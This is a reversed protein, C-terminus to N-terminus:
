CTDPINEQAKDVGERLAQMSWGPLKSTPVPTCSRCGPLHPAPSSERMTARPAGTGPRVQAGASRGLNGPCPMPRPRCPSFVGAACPLADFLLFQDPTSAMRRKGCHGPRFRLTAVSFHAEGKEGQPLLHGVRLKDFPLDSSPHQVSRRSPAQEHKNETENRGVGRM